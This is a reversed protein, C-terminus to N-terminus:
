IIKIRGDDTIKLTDKNPLKKIYDILTKDKDYDFQQVEQNKRSSIIMGPYEPKKREECVFSDHAVTYFKTDSPNSTDIPTKNGHKDVFNLEVLDGTKTITYTLGSAQMLGPEGTPSTMSTKAAEKIVRVIEKETMKSIMLKNKMPTTESIDRETISGLKPVKRTNAFNVLAIDTNLEARMGDCIFGTWGCPTIRRNEPLPDAELLEGVKPSPGLVNSKIAELVPSKELQAKNVDLSATTIIGNEDFEVDLVGAYKGNEGAQVIVIPEGTKSLVINEGQKLEPTLSHSHGGQIIDVGDLLPAIQKDKDIGLHSTIIIKNVGQARLKDIETQALRVTEDLSNPKVGELTKSQSAVTELDIPTLGVIGYRNGNQEIIVSKQINNYFSSGQPLIVNAALFKIKSNKAIDCLTSTSADYEHNGVASAQVGIYELFKIMLNNRKTDSGAYNDGASIKIADAGKNQVEKDFQKSAGLINTMNDIHGHTDNIFFMSLKAKNTKQTQITQFPALTQNQPTYTDQALVPAMQVNQYTWPAYYVQAYPNYPNIQYGYAYYPSYMYNQSNVSSVM